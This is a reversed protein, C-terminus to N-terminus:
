RELQPRTGACGSTCADATLCQMCQLPQAASAQMAADVDRKEKQEVQEALLNVILNGALWLKGNYEVYRFMVYNKIHPLDM